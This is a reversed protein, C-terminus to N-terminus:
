KARPSKGNTDNDKKIPNYYRSPTEPKSPMSYISNDFNGCKTNKKGTHATPQHIITIKDYLKDDEPKDGIICHRLQQLKKQQLVDLESKESQWQQFKLLAEDVSILGKKVKEQLLILEDQDMTVSQSRMASYESGANHIRDKPKVTSYLKKDEKKQVVKPQVSGYMKKEEKERFVLSIYSSGPESITPQCPRPAPAPPRHVIFSRGRQIEEDNSGYPLAMYISNDPSACSYPDEEEINYENEEDIQEGQDDWLINEHSDEKRREQSMYSAETEAVLGSQSVSAPSRNLIFSKMERQSYKYDKESDYNPSETYVNEDVSTWTYPDEEFYEATENWEIDESYNEERGEAQSIHTTEDAQYPFFCPESTLDRHVTSAKEERKPEFILYLNDDTSAFVFQQTQDENTEETMEDLENWSITEHIREVNKDREEQDVYCAENDQRSLLSTKPHWDRNIFSSKESNEREKGVTEFVLYLDDDTSALVFTEDSHSDPINCFINDREFNNNSEDREEPSFHLIGDENITNANKFLPDTSQLVNTPFCKNEQMDEKCSTDKVDACINGIFDEAKHMDEDDKTDFGNEINSNNDAANWCLEEDKETISQYNEDTANDVPVSFCYDDEVNLTEYSNSEVSHLNEKEETYELEHHINADEDIVKHQEEKDEQANEFTLSISKQAASPEMDIYVDDQDHKEEEAFTEYGTSKATNPLQNIIEQIHKHGHKEAIAAPDDGYKNTIRSIHDSGPCQMLLHTVEKLGFKAACHLLTPIEELSANDTHQRIEHLNLECSSIKNQLSKM